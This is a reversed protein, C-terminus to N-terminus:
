DTMRPDRKKVINLSEGKLIMGIDEYKSILSPNRTGDRSRIKEVVEGNENAKFMFDPIMFHGYRFIATAFINPITPDIDPDYSKYAELNNQQGLLSPLYDDYTIKCILATVYNKAFQYLKEDTYNGKM